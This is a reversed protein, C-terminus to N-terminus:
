DESFNCYNCKFQQQLVYGLRDIQFEDDLFLNLRKSVIVEKLFSTCFVIKKQISMKKRTQYYM